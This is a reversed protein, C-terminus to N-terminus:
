AAKARRSGLLNIFAGLVILAGGVLTWVGPVESFVLWGLLAAFVVQLYSFSTAKSATETQMAKTLGVQGVQTAVGVALLLLWDWGSPMVFDSGLLLLSVPLAIIPFYFIIVSPDERGSLTRVLVYAVASGFAGTIAAVIALPPYSAALETFLFEPRVIALLGALSFLICLLTSRQLREGLFVLALLATFMPHLYQLVTAEAYPITTLAYYVCILALTGVGGRALLLTKHTGLLPIRKRRVDLYSIGASVLSRAAVIELLPIGRVSALKVFMGMLAFGFASLIMYRAGLPVFATLSQM